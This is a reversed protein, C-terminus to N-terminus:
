TSHSPDRLVYCKKIFTKTSVPGAKAKKREREIKCVRILDNQILIYFCMGRLCFLGM